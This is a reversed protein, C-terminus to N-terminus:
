EKDRFYARKVNETETGDENEIWLPVETQLGPHGGKKCELLVLEPAKGRRHQVLRMRKPELHHRRCKELLDALRETRYILFFRGGYKLAKDAAACIDDLTAHLETRATGREGSAVAGTEQAFYPPNCIVADAASRSLLREIERLDGPLIEAAMDNEAFNRRALTCAEESCEVGVIRLAPQRALLLVGLLGSGAGLDVVADGPRVRAFDALLFSDTSPKMADDSFYFVPGGPWLSDKKEM